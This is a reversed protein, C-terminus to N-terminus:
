LNELEDLLDQDPTAQNKVNSIALSICYDIVAAKKGPLARNAEDLINVDARM